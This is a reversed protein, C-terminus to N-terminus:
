DAKPEPWWSELGPYRRTEAIYAVDAAVYERKGNTGRRVGLRGESAKRALTSVGVGLRSAANGPKLYRTRAVLERGTALLRDIEHQAYCPGVATEVPTVFGMARWSWITEVHVGAYEAAAEDTLLRVGDGEQPATTVV